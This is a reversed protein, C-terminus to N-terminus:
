SGPPPPPKRETPKFRKLNASRIVFVGDDNGDADGGGLLERDRAAAEERQRKRKLARQAEKERRAKEERAKYEKSSPDFIPNACKKLKLLLPRIDDASPPPSERRADLLALVANVRRSLVDTAPPARGVGAIIKMVDAESTVKEERNAAILAAAAIQAPPYSLPADTRMLDPFMDMARNGLRGIAEATVGDVKSLAPLLAKLPRMPHYVKLHFDVGELAPVELAM